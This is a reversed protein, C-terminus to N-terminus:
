VGPSLPLPPEPHHPEPHHPEPHHPEPHYPIETMELICESAFHTLPISNDICTCYKWVCPWHM